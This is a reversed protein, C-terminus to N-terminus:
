CESKFGEDIRHLKTRRRVARSICDTASPFVVVVFDVM